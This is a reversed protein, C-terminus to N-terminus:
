NNFHLNFHYYFGYMFVPTPSRFGLSSFGLHSRSPSVPKHTRTESLLPDGLPTNM